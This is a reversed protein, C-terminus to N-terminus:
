SIAGNGECYYEWRRFQKWGQAKIKEGNVSYYGNKDVNLPEWFDNFAKQIEYFTLDGNQLKGQPLNDIWQQGSLIGTFILSAIILCLKKM